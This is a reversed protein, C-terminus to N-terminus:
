GPDAHPGTELLHGAVAHLDGDCGALERAAARHLREYDTDPLDAAVAAAVLPHAFRTECSALVGAARLAELLTALDPLEVGALGALAHPSPDDGLVALAAAVARGPPTLAALRERVAHRATPT